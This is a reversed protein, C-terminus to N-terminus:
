TKRPKTFGVLHEISNAGSFKELMLKIYIKIKSLTSPLPYMEPYYKFAIDTFGSMQLTLNLSNETFFHLHSPTDYANTKSELIRGVPTSLFIMGDNKIIQSLQSIAKIPDELHEIVEIMYVLDIKETLDSLTELFLLEYKQYFDQCAPNTELCYILVNTQLQNKFTRSIHANGAGYDLFILPKKVGIQKDLLNSFLNLLRKNREGFISMAQNSEEEINEDRACIGQASHAIPTFFHGCEKNVCQYIKRNHQSTFIFTSIKKCIPCNHKKDLNM